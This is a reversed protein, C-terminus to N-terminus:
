FSALSIPAFPRTLDMEPKDEPLDGYACWLDHAVRYRQVAFAHLQERFYQSHPRAECARIYVAIVPDHACATAPLNQM